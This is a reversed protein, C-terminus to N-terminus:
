KMDFVMVGLTFILKLHDLDITLITSIINQAEKFALNLYLAFTIM